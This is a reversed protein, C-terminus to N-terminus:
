TRERRCRVGVTSVDEELPPHLKRVGVTVASVESDLDLIREATRHALTELLIFHGARALAAVTDVVVAYNTTAGLDDGEAAARLSRELDLDFELPQARTREEPLAGVIAYVRLGRIEIVDSM